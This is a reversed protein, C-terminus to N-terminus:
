VVQQPLFVTDTTNTGTTGVAKFETSGLQSVFNNNWSKRFTAM